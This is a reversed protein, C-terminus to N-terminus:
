PSMEATLRTPKATDNHPAMLLEGAVNPPLWMDMRMREEGGKSLASAPRQTRSKAALLPVPSSAVLGKEKLHDFLRKIDGIAGKERALYGAVDGISIGGWDKGRAHMEGAFKLCQATFTPRSERALGQWACEDIEREMEATPLDPQVVVERHNIVNVGRMPNGQILGTDNLHKFFGRVVSFENAATNPASEAFLKKGYAVVADRTVEKWNQAGQDKEVYNAFDPLVRHIRGVSSIRDVMATDRYDSAGDEFGRSLDSLPDREALRQGLRNEPREPLLETKRNPADFEGKMTFSIQTLPNSDIIGQGKFYEMMDRATSQSFMANCPSSHERSWTRRLYLEAHAPTVASWDDIEHEACMQVAFRKARKSRALSTTSKEGVGVHNIFDQAQDFMKPNLGEPTTVKGRITVVLNESPNSPLVGKEVMYDLLGNVHRLDKLIKAASPHGANASADVWERAIIDMHGPKLDEWREIGHALMAGAVSMLSSRILSKAHGTGNGAKLYEQVPREIAPVTEARKHIDGTARVFLGDTPNEFDPVDKAVLAFLDRAKHTTGAFDERDQTSGQRVDNQKRRLWTEYHVPRVDQWRTLGQRSFEAGMEVAAMTALQLARPSEGKAELILDQAVPRMRWPVRALDAGSPDSYDQYAM